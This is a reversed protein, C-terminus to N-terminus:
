HEIPQEDKYRDRDPKLEEPRLRVRIYEDGGTKGNHRERTPESMGGFVDGMMCAFTNTSSRQAQSLTHGNKTSLPLTGM